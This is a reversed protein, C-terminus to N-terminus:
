LHLYKLICILNIRLIVRCHLKSCHLLQWGHKIDDKRAWTVVAPAPALLPCPGTHIKRLYDENPGISTVQLWLCLVDSCVFVHVVCQPRLSPSNSRHSILATLWHASNESGPNTRSQFLNETYFTYSFQSRLYYLLVSINVDTHHYFM